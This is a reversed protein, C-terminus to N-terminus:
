KKTTKKKKKVEGPTGKPLADEVLEVILGMHETLLALPNYKNLFEMGVPEEDVDFRLTSGLLALLVEEDMDQHIKYISKLFSEGTIRKFTAIAKMDVVCVMDQDEIKVKKVKVLLSM